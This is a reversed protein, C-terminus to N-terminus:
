YFYSSPSQHTMQPCSQVTHFHYSIIIQPFSIASSYQPLSVAVSSLVLSLPTFLLLLLICDELFCVSRIQPQSTRISFNSHINLFSLFLPSILIIPIPHTGIATEKTSWSGLQHFVQIEYCIKQNTAGEKIPMLSKQQNFHEDISLIM